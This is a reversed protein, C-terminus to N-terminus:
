KGNIEQQREEVNANIANEVVEIEQRREEANVVGTARNRDEIEERREVAIGDNAQGNASIVKLGERASGEKREANTDIEHEQPKTNAIHAETTTDNLKQPHLEKNNVTDNEDDYLPRKVDNVPQQNNNDLQPVIAQVERQKTLNSGTNTPLLFIQNHRKPMDINMAECIQYFDSKLIEILGKRFVSGWRTGVKTLFSLHDLFPLMPADTTKPVYRAPRRYVVEDNGLDIGYPEGPLVQGIATFARVPAGADRGEERIVKFHKTGPSYYIFWSNPNVQKFPKKCGNKFQCYGKDIADLVQEKGMVGVWYRVRTRTSM